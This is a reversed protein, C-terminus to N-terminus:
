LNLVLVLLNKLHKKETLVLKKPEEVIATGVNTMPSKSKNYFYYGVGALLVVGIGIKTKNEM